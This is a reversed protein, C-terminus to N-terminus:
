VAGLQLAMGRFESQLSRRFESYAAKATEVPTKSDPVTIHVTINVPASAGGGAASPALDTINRTPSPPTYPATAAALDAASPALTEWPRTQDMRTEMGGDLGDVADVGISYTKRSPSHSDLEGRLSEPIMEWLGTINSMFRDWGSIIGDWLGNVIDSGIEGWTMSGWGSLWDAFRTFGAVLEGWFEVWADIQDVVWAGVFAFAITLGAAAVALVGIAFGAMKGLKELADLLYNAGATGDGFWGMMQKTPEIVKSFGEWLSGLASKLTEWLVRSGVTLGTLIPGLTDMGLFGESGEAIETFIGQVTDSFEKAQPSAFADNVYSLLKVFPATDVDAFLKALNGRISAMQGDISNLGIEKTATGLAKGGDIKNTAFDAIMNMADLTTIQGKAIADQIEKVSKGKTKALQALLAQAGGSGKAASGFMELTDATLKGQSNLKLIAGQLQALAEAKNAGQASAIDSAASFITEASSQNMGSGRLAQFMEIVKGAEFPTDNAISSVRDYTANAAEKTGDILEFAQVANAKFKAAEFAYKAGMVGLGLGVAALGTAVTFAKSAFTGIASESFGKGLRDLNANFRSAASDIHRLGAAARAAPSSIEDELKTVYQIDVSTTM